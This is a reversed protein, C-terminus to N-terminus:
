VYLTTQRHDCDFGLSELGAQRIEGQILIFCELKLNGRESRKFYKMLIRM